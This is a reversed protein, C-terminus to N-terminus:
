ASAPTEGPNRTEPVAFALLLFALVAIGALGLFSAAYGYHQILEGGATNSLAAGIGVATALVGSALNFRGTGRTRDAIVLIAVVGFIANAVGDLVQVAILAPAGHVVTYLVGRVPLIGFGAILLPKRGWTAAARGIWAASLAIVTQTVIICAAMFPGADRTKGRALMEGLDPLMAANALHFFFVCLLFTLLVPDSALQRLHEARNGGPSSAAGRARGYDIQRGDIALLCAATPLTLVAALLFIAHFGLHYSIWAITLATIVNGASNFSQNRGFQRDFAAAGVVGLTIATVAPGLFPGAIGILAQASYVRFPTLPGILLLAGTTLVALSGALLLRKRHIADIIGGAPIQMGVTVLGALTLAFGVRSAPWGNAALYAALFPGLGTQVDALFFNLWEIARLTQRNNPSATTAPASPM